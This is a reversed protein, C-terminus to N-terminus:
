NYGNALILSDNGKAYLPINFEIQMRLICKFLIHDFAIRWRGISVPLIENQDFMLDILIYLISPHLTDPRVKLTM